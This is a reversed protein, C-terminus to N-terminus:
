NTTNASSPCSQNQHKQKIKWSDRLTLFDVFCYLYQLIFMFQTMKITECPVISVSNKNIAREAKFETFGGASAVYAPLKVTSPRKL